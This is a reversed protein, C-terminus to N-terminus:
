LSAAASAIAPGVRTGLLTLATIAVVTVLMLLFTYESLGQGRCGRVLTSLGHVRRELRKQGSLQM